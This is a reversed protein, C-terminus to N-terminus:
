AAEVVGLDQLDQVMYFPLQDEPKPLNFSIKRPDIIAEEQAQQGLFSRQEHLFQTIDEHYKRIQAAEPTAEEIRLHDEEMKSLADGTENVLAVMQATPLGARNYELDHERQLKLQKKQTLLIMKQLENQITPDSLNRRNAEMFDTIGKRDETQVRDREVRQKEKVEEKRQTEYEMRVTKQVPTEKGEKVVPKGQADLSVQPKGDKELVELHHDEYFSSKMQELEAGADKIFAERQALHDMQMQHLRSAATQPFSPAATLINKGEEATQSPGFAQLMKSNIESMRMRHQMLLQSQSPGGGEGG